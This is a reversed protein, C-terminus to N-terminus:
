GKPKWPHARPPLRGPQAQPTVTMPSTAASPGDGVDVVIPNGNPGKVFDTGAKVYYQNPGAGQVGYLSPNAAAGGIGNAAFADKMRGTLTDTFQNENAGWPMVVKGRGNFDTTGGTVAKVAEQILNTDPADKGSLNGTRASKGAYYARVAQYATDAAGPMGAFATGIENNFAQRLLMDQPMPFGSSKGDQAKDAKNPHLLHEGELLIGAVERPQVTEDPRFWHTATVVTNNNGLLTAAALTVPSDPTVQQVLTRFAAPDNMKTSLSALYDLKQSTPMAQLGRAFAEAEPKTLIAPQTGFSESLAKSQAVRSAAGDAMKDPTSMDLPAVGGIRAQIAFQVPDAARQQRVLNVAQSYADYRSQQAAFGPSDPVPKLSALTADQQAGTAGYAAKVQAGLQLMPQYEEAYKRTGEAAGYAAVFQDKPIPSGVEGTSAAQSAQNKWNNELTAKNVAMIQNQRTEWHGILAIRKSMDLADWGPINVANAMISPDREAQVSLPAPVAAASEQAAKDARALWGNLYKQQDPNAAAIGQYRQKRLELMTDLNGGSAAILEKAAGVGMNVATDMAFSQISAPLNDGGIPTWYRDKYIQVAQAKTLNKVDIDPNARQNIGFNVPAGSNGDTAAYGGEKTLVRSVAADFGGGAQASGIPVGNAKSFAANPLVKALAGQPNAEGATYAAAYAYKEKNDRVLAERQTVNLHAFNGFGGLIVAEDQGVVNEYQSPDAMLTKVNNDRATEADLKAQVGAQQQQFGFARDVFSTQVSSSMRAFLEKGRPTQINQGMDEFYKSMDKQVTPAFTMDGPKAQTEREQMNQTWDMRAQSMKSYIDSMEAKTQYEMLGDAAKDIGQGLATMGRGTDFTAASAQSTDFGQPLVQQEYPQIRAM